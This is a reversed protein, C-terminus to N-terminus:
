IMQDGVIFFDANDGQDNIAEKVEEILEEGESKIESFDPQTGGILNFSFVSLPKGVSQMSMGLVYKQFLDNRFLAEEPLYLAGTCVLGKSLMDRGLILLRNTEEIYDFAVSKLQFQMAFDEYYQVALSFVLDDADGLLATGIQFRSKSYDSDPNTGFWKNTGSEEVQWIAHVCDPLQIMRHKKFLDTSFAKPKIAIYGEQNAGDYNQYFYTKARNILRDIRTKKLSVPIGCAESVEDQIFQLFEQKNYKPLKGYIPM